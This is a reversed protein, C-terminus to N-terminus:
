AHEEALRDALEGTGDPSNDDIVLVSVDREGLARVMPELNERENYTPLCVTARVDTDDGHHRRRERAVRIHCLLELEQGVQELDLTLCGEPHERVPALSSSFTSLDTPRLFFAVPGGRVSSPRASGASSATTSTSRSCGAASRTESAPLARRRLSVTRSRSMM